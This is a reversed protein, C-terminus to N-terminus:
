GATAIRRSVYSYMVCGAFYAQAHSMHFRPHGTRPFMKSNMKIPNELAKAAFQMIEGVHVCKQYIHVWM